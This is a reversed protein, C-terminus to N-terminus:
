YWEGRHVWYDFQRGIDYVVLGTSIIVDGLVIETKDKTGNPVGGCIDVVLGLKIAPFSSRYSSAVKAAGTKGIRLMRALVVNLSGFSGLTYTNIDGLAKGYNSDEWFEDFLAEVADSEVQLACFIAVDFDNCHRPQPFAWISAVASAFGIEPHLVVPQIAREHQAQPFADRTM